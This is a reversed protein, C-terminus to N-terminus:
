LSRTDSIHLKTSSVVIYEHSKFISETFLLHSLYRCSTNSHYVALPMLALVDFNWIISKPSLLFFLSHKLMLSCSIVGLLCTLNRPTVMSLARLHAYFIYSPWGFIVHMQYILVM